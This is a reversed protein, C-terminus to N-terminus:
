KEMWRIIPLHTAAAICFLGLVIQCFIFSIICDTFWFQLPFFCSFFSASIFALLMGLLAGLITIGWFNFLLVALILTRPIGVLQKVYIEKSKGRLWYIIIDLTNCFLLILFLAFFCVVVFGDKDTNSSNSQGIVSRIIMGAFEAVFTTTFSFLVLIFSKTFYHKMFGSWLYRAFM